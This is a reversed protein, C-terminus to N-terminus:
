DFSFMDDIFMYSDDASLVEVSCLSFKKRTRRYSSLLGTEKSIEAYDTFNSEPYETSFMIHTETETYSTFHHKELFMKPFNPLPSLKAFHYEESLEAYVISPASFDTIRIRKGDCIVAYEVAHATPHYRHIRFRDGYRWIEYVGETFESEVKSAYVRIKLYYTDILPLEALLAEPIEEEFVLREPEQPTKTYIPFNASQPITQSSSLDTQESFSFSIIGMSDLVALVGMCLLFFVLLVSLISMVTLFSKSALLKKM